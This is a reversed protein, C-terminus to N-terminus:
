HRQNQLIVIIKVVKDGYKELLKNTKEYIENFEIKVDDLKLEEIKTSEEKFVKSKPIVEIQTSMYYSTISDSSEDYFDIQWKSNDVENIDSMLFISCLFGSNKFEKSKLLKSYNDKIKSLM